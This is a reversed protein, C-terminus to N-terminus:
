DVYEYLRNEDGNLKVTSGAGYDLNATAFIDIIEVEHTRQTNGYLGENEYSRILKATMYHYPGEIYYTCGEWGDYKGVPAGKHKQIDQLSMTNAYGGTIKTMEKENLKKM